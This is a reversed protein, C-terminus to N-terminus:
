DVEDPNRRRQQQHHRHAHKRVPFHHRLLWETNQPLLSAGGIHAPRWSTSHVSPRAPVTGPATAVPRPTSRVEWLVVRDGGSGTSYRKMWIKTHRTYLATQLQTYPQDILIGCDDVLWEYNGM